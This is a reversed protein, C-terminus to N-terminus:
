RRRSTDVRAQRPRHTPLDVIADRRRPPPPEAEVGVEILESPGCSCIDCLAALVRLSLREPVKAVLRYVQAPSLEVGREVLLPVLETTKWIGRAGLRERLHWRYGPSGTM